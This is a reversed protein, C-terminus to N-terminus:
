FAGVGPIPDQPQLSFGFMCKNPNQAGKGLKSIKRVQREGLLHALLFLLGSSIEYRACFSDWELSSTKMEPSFINAHCQSRSSEGFKSEGRGGMGM